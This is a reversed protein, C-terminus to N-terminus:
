AIVETSYEFVQSIVSNIFFRFYPSEDNLLISLINIGSVFKMNTDSIFFLNVPNKNTNENYIKVEKSLVYSSEPNLSFILSIYGVRSSYLKCKYSRLVYQGNTLTGGIWKPVYCVHDIKNEKLFNFSKKSIFLVNKKNVLQKYLAILATVLNKYSFELNILSLSYGTGQIFKNECKRHRVYHGYQFGLNNLTKICDNALSYCESDLTYDDLEKKVLISFIQRHKTILDILLPDKFIVDFM